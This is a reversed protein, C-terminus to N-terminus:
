PYEIHAILFVAASKKPKKEEYILQNLHRLHLPTLHLPPPRELSLLLGAASVLLAM